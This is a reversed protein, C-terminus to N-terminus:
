RRFRLRAQMQLVRFRHRLNGAGAYHGADGDLRVLGKRRRM